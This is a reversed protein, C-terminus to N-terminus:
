ATTPWYRHFGGSAGCLQKNLTFILLKLIQRTVKAVVHTRHHYVVWVWIFGHLAFSEALIPLPLQPTGLPLHFDLVGNSLQGFDKLLNVRKPFVQLAFM